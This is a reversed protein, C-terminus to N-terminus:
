QKLEPGLHNTAIKTAIQQSIVVLVWGSQKFSMCTQRWCTALIFPGRHQMM